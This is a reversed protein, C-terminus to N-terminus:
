TCHIPVTSSSAGYGPTYGKKHVTYLYLVPALETDQHMVKDIYLTYISVTSSSAGYGPTYGQEHVTYLYYTCYQLGQLIVKYKYLTHTCHQLGM